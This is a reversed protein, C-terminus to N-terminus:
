PPHATRPRREDRRNWEYLGDNRFYGHRWLLLSETLAPNDSQQVHFWLHNREAGIRRAIEPLHCTSESQYAKMRTYLCVAAKGIYKPFFLNHGPHDRDVRVYGWEYVGRKGILYEKWLEFESYRGADSWRGM